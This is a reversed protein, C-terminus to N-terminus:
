YLTFHRLRRSAELIRDRHGFSSVRIFEDGGPGFGTGPITLIDKRELIQTFVEWSNSGPFHVWIYPANKGGYVKLGLSEFAKKLIKSNEKYFNIVGQIAMSGETSLCALGGAQAINSAGNFCTCIIRNFDKIVPYGNAFVLEEPVVTWGLRVGTFGAFKSFSSIEIAVERAGAIEFISKPCDDSIFAAYASDYIIISGNKRAFEVLEKLQNKTAAYGTPNNPSCFFIVDTRSTTSLDPFFGNEPGCKMYEINEYKRTKEKFEGTQGMIVSSDVYVKHRGKRMRKSLRTFPSHGSPFSTRMRLQVSVQTTCSVPSHTSYVGRPGSFDCVFHTHNPIIANPSGKAFKLLSEAILMRFNVDEKVSLHYAIKMKKLSIANELLYRVTHLEDEDAVRRSDVIEIAKLHKLLHGTLDPFSPDQVATTVNSGLLLQIRSIDGQAGDSVFVENDKIGLTRYISEVIMKRLAKNGQETGYGKYGKATSLSRSHEAMALTIIDPIPETTDGVGLSILKADPHKQIHEFELECIQHTRANTSIHRYCHSEREQISISAGVKAFLYENRLREMNMNRPVKSRCVTRISRKGTPSAVLREELFFLSTQMSGPLLLAPGMCFSSALQIHHM